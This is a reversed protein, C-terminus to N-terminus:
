STVYVLNVYVQNMYMTVAVQIEVSIPKRFRATDKSIYQRVEDCLVLFSQKAMRFNEKWEDAAVEDNLFQLWWQKTRGSRSWYERKIRERKKKERSIVKDCLM